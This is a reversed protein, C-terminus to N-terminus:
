KEDKEERARCESEQFLLEIIKSKAQKEEKFENNRANKFLTDLTLAQSKLIQSLPKDKVNGNELNDKITLYLSYNVANLYNGAIYERIRKLDDCEQAILPFFYLSIIFLTKKM